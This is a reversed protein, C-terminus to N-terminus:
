GGLWRAEYGLTGQRGRRCQAEVGFLEGKGFFSFKQSRFHVRQLEEQEEMMWGRGGEEM